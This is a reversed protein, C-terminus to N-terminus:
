LVTYSRVFTSFCSICHLGRQKSDLWPRNIPSLSVITSSKCTKGNRRKSQFELDYYRTIIKPRNSSHFRLRWTSVTFLLISFLITSIEAYEFTLEISKSINQWSVCAVVSLHWVDSIFIDLSKAALALTQCPICNKHSISIHPKSLQEACVTVASLSGLANNSM